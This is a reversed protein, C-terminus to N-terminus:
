SAKRRKDAAPILQTPAEPTKPAEPAATPAPAAAKVARLQEISIGWTKALHAEAAAETMMPANGRAMPRPVDGATFREHAKKVLPRVAEAMKEANENYKKLTESSHFNDMYEGLGKFFAYAASNDPVNAIEIITTEGTKRCYYPFQTYGADVLIKAITTMTNVGM